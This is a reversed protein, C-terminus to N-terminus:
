NVEELFLGKIKNNKKPKFIKWHYIEKIKCSIYIIKKNKPPYVNNTQYYKKLHQLYLGIDDSGKKVKWFAM